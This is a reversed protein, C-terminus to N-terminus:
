FATVESKSFNRWYGLRASKVSSPPNTESSDFISSLGLGLVFMISVGTQDSSPHVSLFNALHRGQCKQIVRQKCNGISKSRWCCRVSGAGEEHFKERFVWGNAIADNLDFGIYLSVARSVVLDLSSAVRCTYILYEINSFFTCKM